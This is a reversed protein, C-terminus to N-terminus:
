RSNLLMSVPVLCLGKERLKTCSIQEWDFNSHGDEGIQYSANRKKESHCVPSSATDELDHDVFYARSKRKKAVSKDSAVRDNNAITSQPESGFSSCAFSSSAVSDDIYFSWGSADSSYECESISTRTEKDYNTTSISDDMAPFSSAM